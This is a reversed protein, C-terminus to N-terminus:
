AGPDDLRREVFPQLSGFATADFGPRSAVASEITKM